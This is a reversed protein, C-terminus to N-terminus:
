SRSRASVPGDRKPQSRTRLMWVPVVIVLVTDIWIVVLQPLIKWSALFTSLMERTKCNFKSYLEAWM